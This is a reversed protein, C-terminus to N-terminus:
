SSFLKHSSNTSISHRNFESVLLDIYNLSNFHLPIL